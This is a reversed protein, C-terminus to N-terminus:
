RKSNVQGGIGTAAAVKEVVKESDDKTNNEEAVGHIRINEQRGYQNLEDMQYVLMQVSQKM